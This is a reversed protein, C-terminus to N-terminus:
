LKEEIKKLAKEAIAKKGELWDAIKELLGESIAKSFRLADQRTIDGTYYALSRGYPHDEWVDQSPVILTWRTTDETDIKIMRYNEPITIERFEGPTPSTVDECYSELQEVIKIAVGNCAEKLKETVRSTESGVRELRKLSNIISNNQQTM